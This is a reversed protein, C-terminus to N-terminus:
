LSDYEDAILFLHGSVILDVPLMVDRHFLPLDFRTLQPKSKVGAERLLRWVFETCYVSRSDAIDYSSDFPMNRRLSRMAGDHIATRQAPDELLRYLGYGTAKDQALFRSLQEAVVGARPDAHVVVWRDDASILIGVHSLHGNRAIARVGDAEIGTGARFLIDGDVLKPVLAIRWDRPATATQLTDSTPSLLLAFGLAGFKIADYVM